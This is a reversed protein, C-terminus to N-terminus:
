KKYSEEILKLLLILKETWNVQFVWCFELIKKLPKSFFTM